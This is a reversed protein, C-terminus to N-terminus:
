AKTLLHEMAVTFILTFYNIDWSFHQFLERKLRASKTQIPNLASIGNDKFLVFDTMYEAHHFIYEVKGDDGFIPVNWPSGFGSSGDRLPVDYRQIGIIDTTGYKVVSDLFIHLNSM